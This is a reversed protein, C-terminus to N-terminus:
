EEIDVGMAKLEQSVRALPVLHTREESEEDDAYALDMANYVTDADLKLADFAEALASREHTMIWDVLNVLVDIAQTQKKMNLSYCFASVRCTTKINKETKKNQPSPM